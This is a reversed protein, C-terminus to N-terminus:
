VLFAECERRKRCLSRLLTALDSQSMRDLTGLDTGVMQRILMLLQAKTLHDISLSVRERIPNPFLTDFIEEDGVGRRKLEQYRSLENPELPVAILADDTHDRQRWNRIALLRGDPVQQFIRKPTQNEAVASSENALTLRAAYRRRQGSSRLKRDM